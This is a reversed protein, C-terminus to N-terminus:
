VFGMEVYVFGNQFWLKMKHVTTFNIGFRQRKVFRKSCTCRSKKHLHIINIINNLKITCGSLLIKDVM